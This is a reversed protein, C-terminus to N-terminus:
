EGRGDEEPGIDSPSSPLSPLQHMPASSIRRMLLMEDAQPILRQISQALPTEGDLGSADVSVSIAPASLKSFIPPVLASAKRLSSTTTSGSGDLPDSQKRHSFTSRQSIVGSPYYHYHRHGYNGDFPSTFFPSASADYPGVYAAGNHTRADFTVM